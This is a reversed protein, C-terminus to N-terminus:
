RENFEPWGQEAGADVDSSGSEWHDLEAVPATWDAPADQKLRACASEISRWQETRRVEEPGTM